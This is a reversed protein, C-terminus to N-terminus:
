GSIVVSLSEFMTVDVDTVPVATTAGTVTASGSATTAGSLTVSVTQGVCVPDIGSVLVSTVEWRQQAPDFEVPYSLDLGDSDCSEVIVDEAGHADSSLGGLHAAAAVLPASAVTAVAVYFATTSFRM